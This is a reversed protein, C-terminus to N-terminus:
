GAQLPVSGSVVTGKGPGSTIELEGGVAALRDRMNTLGTGEAVAGNFGGGDDSVEFRLADGDSLTIEVLRADSAHKTANQVAELCCFYVASEVEPPYRGIEAANLRAEVPLQRSVGRLAEALGRDALLSPYVGHALERIQELTEGVDEGLAHLKAIGREPDRAVLEETLELQIRLAVLRQQAGDHLDRELRRRERDASALIRARSKRVEGLSSEVKATLRRNELAVLAYSSVAQIFARQGSLAADHVIGAAIRNGNRIESLARGSEPVPAAVPDGALDVWRNQSGNVPYVIQLSPDQLADALAARMEEPTSRGTIRTALKQLADAAYLRRQFLGVFFAAAIAPLALAIALSSTEAFASEPNVWRAGVGIAVLLVRAGAVFLVPNLTRRMLPSAGTVRQAVRATVALFIVLTLVERTPIFFGDLIAPESSFVFFANDPCGETCSTYPAPTVYDNALLTTPLYLVAVLAATALVLMRDVPATLRGSPFSLILWVLGIEVVWGAVRGVSYVLSQDSEALTTLFWGFGAAVLLPGFREGPRRHWAYLGVAIPMAVMLGRAVAAATPNSPLDSHTAIAAAVATLAVGAFGVATLHFTLRIRARRTLGSKAPGVRLAGVSTSVDVQSDM